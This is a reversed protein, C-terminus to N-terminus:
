ISSKKERVTLDILIVEIAEVRPFTSAISNWYTELEEKLKALTVNRGDIKWSQRESRGQWILLMVGCGATEARLYDGALQNRLRECLKPGTWNKDLLKLEIPVSSVGPVQTWIDPRQGNPLENEQACSYRGLSHVNLWGAVLNRMETEGDPRKWTKYPSDNGQELWALLDNLRAVTLDFLQRHTAPTITQDQDFERVQSASWLELDADEEARKLALKAMWSRSSPDPHDQALESLAEYAQKGRIQTLEAFLDNRAEQADDRLVPSYVGTGAREIDDEVRIYQHMMVYLDKLHDANRFSWYTAGTKGLRRGGMLRTIFLQAARSADEFNQQSRLWEELKPIGDVADVDVWIAYWVVLQEVSGGTNIKSQVLPLLSHITAGGSTVIQICHGLAEQNLIENTGMWELLPNVLSSHLWPAYYVLDHLIYHQSQDSETNELEWFLETLVAKSVLQPYVRHIVELWSPFGNLEWVIYRLAHRIENEELYCPFDERERAEIELGAMAFILAYPVSTTDYGASRLGPTVKRWRDVAANRYARAVDDGFDICLTKWDSGNYHGAQPGRDRVEQLLWSQHDTIENPKLDPPSNVADPNAKLEEIWRARNEAHKAKKQERKKAWEEDEQQSELVSQPITPNLLTDLQKKLALTEQVAMRLASLWDSPMDSDAFLQHALSLAVLKDDEVDRQSIFHLVDYFRDSSFSWYHEMWQVQWYETLSQNRDTAIQARAEEVTVWFLADNLDTWRPVLEHLREKYNDFNDDDWARSMPVKRMIALAEAKLADKQRWEVLREVAHTAPGLLWKYTKSVHCERREIYPRKKLFNNMGIVLQMLPSTGSPPTEFPVRDIFGHLADKVGSSDFRQPAEIKDISELLLSVSLENAEAEEIIEAFIRLPLREQLGILKRWLDLKQDLTGCTMVARTSAIRAYIGCSSTTAIQSLKPLCNSMEGQWVLRALFFIADDNNQHLTILRLADDELDAQAIRAIASNDRASHEDTNNVIREVINELLAKRERLPLQAADGGEVVVEPTIDVATRRIADDFLILWSLVPRLRPTIVKHKYQERFFLSEVARHSNGSRLHENFWEAALLECVERHRFRVMGYLADNFIGRGLLEYVESAKWDDLVAEADLGEISQNTDPVCIGRKGTLIVAASLLRAGCRAKDLSLTQDQARDPDIEKLRFDINHRLLELRGGLRQDSEWKVLIGNLDFPRGALSMLNARQLHIILQDINLVNRHKAFVRVDDESLPDLYYVCLASKQETDKKPKTEVVDNQEVSVAETKPREFPLLKNLLDSDSRSRWAYPRSSIIIHARHQAPKIRNAFREIAKKFLRQNKLRAEDISDLFFWAEDQSQLWKEFGDASGVEFASDFGDEIDEIRIFFSAKGAEDMSTARTEMEYTKGAGAEALIVTRFEKEIDDWNVRERGSLFNQLEQDNSDTDSKRVPSFFRVVPVPQDCM